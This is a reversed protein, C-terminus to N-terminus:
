PGGWSGDANQWALGDQKGPRAIIRQAYEHVEYGERKRLAYEKQAEVYGHCIEIADLENDGIRRYVLERRGAAADFFWKGGRNVVPVPFPWNEDGVFVTARNSTKPDVEV